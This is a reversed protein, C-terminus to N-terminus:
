SKTLEKFLEELSKKRLTMSLIKFGQDVALNFILPRIDSTSATQLLYRNGSIEKIIEIDSIQQWTPESISQDTEILITQIDNRSKGSLQEARDNAIIEGKNIIIVRDCIAEVEQMIHTSLLITKEKGIHSILKRIEIIQNPDLGSTPEDLILVDPDHLLAQALGVRQRYGKSLNGIKKRSEDGLGTMEIIDRIRGKVRSRSIHYLGAVYSLYERVYLDNYLPNQEPLYGIIKKISVPDEVADIDKIRVNGSDPILFGTIIKM